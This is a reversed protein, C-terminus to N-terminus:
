VGTATKREDQTARVPGPEEYVSSAPVPMEPLTPADAPVGRVRLKSPMPRSRTDVPVGARASGRSPPMDEFVGPMQTSHKSVPVGGPAQIRSVDVRHNRSM